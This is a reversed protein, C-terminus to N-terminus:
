PPEAEPGDPVGYQPEERRPRRKRRIVVVTLAGLVGAGAVVVALRWPFPAAGPGTENGPTPTPTRESAAVSVALAPGTATFGNSDTVNAAITYNGAPLACSIHTVASAGIAGCELPLGTWDVLPRGSGPTVAVSFTVVTGSTPSPVTSWPKSVTPDPLVSFALGASDAALSPAYGVTASVVGESPFTPDCPLSSLNASACGIPLGTWAYSAFASVGTLAASFEIPQGVDSSSRSETPSGVTPGVLIPVAVFPGVVTTNASDTAEVRVSFAGSENPLCSLSAADLSRCGGPLGLWRLSVNGAGGTVAVSLHAAEGVFLPTPDVSVGAVTPPRGVTLIRPPSTATKGDTAQLVVRVPFTGPTTATCEIETRNAGPCGPLSTWNFTAGSEQGMPAESLHVSQGVEFITRDASPTRATLPPLLEWLNGSATGEGGMAWVTGTSPDFASAAFQHYSPPPTINVGTWNGAGYFWTRAGLGGDFLPIPGLGLGGALTAAAAAPPSAAPHVMAWTGNAYEWTQNSSRGGCGYYAATVGLCGGYEILASSSPDYAMATWALGPPSTVPALNSWTGNAFEWTDNFNTTGDTGGSLVVAQLAPDFVLSAGWRGPPSVSLNLPTWTGALYAWTAPSAYYTNTWGGFLITENLAPDFAMSPGLRGSPGPAPPLLTWTGAAYTWTQNLFGGFTSCSGSCQPQGGFLLLYGDASDYTM